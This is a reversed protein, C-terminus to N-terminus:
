HEHALIKLRAHAAPHQLMNIVARTLIVHRNHPLLPPHHLHPPSRSRTQRICIGFIKRTTPHPSPTTTGIPPRCQTPRKPPRHTPTHPRLPFDHAKPPTSTSAITLDYQQLHTHARSDIEISTPQYNLDITSSYSIRPPTILSYSRLLGGASICKSLSRLEPDQSKWLTGSAM